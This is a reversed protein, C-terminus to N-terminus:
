LRKSLVGLALGYIVVPPGELLTWLLPMGAELDIATILTGFIVNMWVVYRIVARHRVPDRSSVLLLTGHFGYLAAVSRTLYEVVPAHPFEGLGLFRHTAAMWEVPLLMAPFALLMVAGAFRLLLVLLRHDAAVTRRTHAGPRYLAEPPDRLAEGSVVRTQHAM